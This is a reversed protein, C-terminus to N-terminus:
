PLLTIIKWNAINFLRDPLYWTNDILLWLFNYKEIAEQNLDSWFTHHGTQHGDNKKFDWRNIDLESYNQKSSFWWINSVEFGLHKSIINNGLKPYGNVLINVITYGLSWLNLM